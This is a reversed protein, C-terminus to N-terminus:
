CIPLLAVPRVYPNQKKRSTIGDNLTEPNEKIQPQACLWSAQPVTGNYIKRISLGRKRTRKKSPPQYKQNLSRIEHSFIRAQKSREASPRIMRPPNLFIFVPM